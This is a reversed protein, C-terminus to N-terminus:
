LLGKFISQSLIFHISLLILALSVFPFFLEQKRHIAKVDIETKELQDIENYITKLEEYDHARFFRGGNSLDAIRILTAEDISVQGMGFVLEGSSNKGVPMMALGNTGIGITYVRIGMSKALKAANIPQIYGGNNEGDTLLIVVKSKSKTNQMRNVATALGMGIATGDALNGSRLQDITRLVVDHDSTLPCLTMAEGSFAVLGIRDYKRKEVFNSAVKKAVELRNPQFDQAMMSLSLDFVFVIDIGNSKIIEEAYPRQPRALALAIAFIGIWKLIEVKKAWKLKPSSLTPDLGIHPLKLSVAKHGKMWQRFAIFSLPFLM